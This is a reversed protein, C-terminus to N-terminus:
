CSLCANAWPTVQKNLGHWVFKSVIIKKTTKIGPHALAHFTDFVRRRWIMPIIPQASGTSVDCLLSFSGGAFPVDALRLNTIASRYNQVDEDAEQAAYLEKYDIGPHVANCLFGPAEDPINEQVTSPTSSLADAAVIDKHSM